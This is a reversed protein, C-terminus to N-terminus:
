WRGRGGRRGGRGGRGGGGRGGYGRGGGRGERGDRYGEWKQIKREGRHRSKQGSFLKEIDLEGNPRYISAPLPMLADVCKRYSFDEESGDKRILYYCRSKWQPHNRIQFAAIGDGIKQPNGQAVLESLVMYEYKNVSLNLTWEHLLDYFYIFMEVATNFVKPGLKKPEVSQDEQMGEVRDGEGVDSKVKKVADEEDEGRIRKRDVDEGGSEVAAVSGNGSLVEEVKVADTVIRVMADEIVVEGGEDGNDMTEAAGDRGGRGNGDESGSEMEEVGEEGEEYFKGVMEPTITEDPPVDEVPVVPPVTVPHVGPDTNIGERPPCPAIRTVSEGQPYEEEEEEKGSGVATVDDSAEPETVVPLSIFEEEPCLGEAIPLEEVIVERVVVIDEACVEGEGGSEPDEGPLTVVPLSGAM